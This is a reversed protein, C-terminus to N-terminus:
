LINIYPIMNSPSIADFPSTFISDKNFKTFINSELINQGHAGLLANELLHTSLSVPNKVALNALVAQIRTFFSPFPMLYLDSMFKLGKPM